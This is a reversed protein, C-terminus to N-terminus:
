GNRSHIARLLTDSEVHIAFIADDPRRQAAHLSDPLTERFGLGESFTITLDKLRLAIRELRM